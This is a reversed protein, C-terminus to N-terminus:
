FEMARTYDDVAGLYDGLKMRATGRKRYDDDQGRGGNELFQDFARVAERYKKLKLLTRAHLRRLDTAGPALKLGEECLQLAAAYKERRYLDRGRLFHYDALVTSPAHRRKAKEFNEAAADPSGEHWYAEALALYAQYHEPRLRIAENFDTKAA